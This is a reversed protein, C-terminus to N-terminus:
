GVVALQPEARAKGECAPRRWLRPNCHQWVPSPRPRRPERGVVSLLSWARRGEAEGKM